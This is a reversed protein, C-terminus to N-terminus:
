HSPPRRRACNMKSPHTRSRSCNNRCGKSKKSQARDASAHQYVQAYVVTDAKKQEEDDNEKGDKSMVRKSDAELLVKKLRKESLINQLQTVHARLELKRTHGNYIEERLYSNIMLSQNLQETVNRRIQECEELQACRAQLVQRCEDFWKKHKELNIKLMSNEETLAEVKLKLSCIEKYQSSIRIDQLQSRESNKSQFCVMEQKLEELEKNKRILVSMEKTLKKCYSEFETNKQQLCNIVKSRSDELDRGCISYRNKGQLTGNERCENNGKPNKRTCSKDISEKCIENLPFKSIHSFGNQIRNYFKNHREECQDNLRSREQFKGCGVSQTRRYEKENEIIQRGNYM